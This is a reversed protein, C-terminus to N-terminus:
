ATKELDDLGLTEYTREFERLQRHAEEKKVGYREQLKEILRDRNGAIVELDDDTLREWKGQMMDQALNWNDEIRDWNM